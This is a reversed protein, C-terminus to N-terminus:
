RFEALMALGDQAAKGILWTDAGYLLVNVGLDTLRETQARNMSTSGVAKGAARAMRTAAAVFAQVRPDDVHGPIGLAVSYDFVGLYVLDLNPLAVIAPLNAAAAPSEILVGTFPYGPALKPQPPMGYHGGKTFPNYGRSGLPAFHAMAVAHAASAADAIQPIVVGDAGLDLVRQIFFADAGPARVIPAAGGDECATIAADLASFDWGGHECDLIVFDFGAIALAATLQPAPIDQWIGAISGGAALKAKLPNLSLDAFAVVPGRNVRRRSEGLIRGDRDRL